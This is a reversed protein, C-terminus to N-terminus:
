ASDFCRSMPLCMCGSRADALVDPMDAKPVPQVFEVNGIKELRARQALAEKVVGDGVLVVRIHPGTAELEAAADLLLDLGNAPGHAGAYMFTVPLTDQDPEVVAFRDIDAGNPIFLVRKEEGM